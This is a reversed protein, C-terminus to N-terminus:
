TCCYSFRRWPKGVGPGGIITATAGAADETRVLTGNLTIVASSPSSVLVGAGWGGPGDACVLSLVSLMFGFFQGSIAREVGFM